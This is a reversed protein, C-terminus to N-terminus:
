QGLTEKEDLPRKAMGYKEIGNQESFEIIRLSEVRLSYYRKENKTM